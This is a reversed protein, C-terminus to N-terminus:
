IIWLLESEVVMANRSLAELTQETHVLRSYVFLVILALKM